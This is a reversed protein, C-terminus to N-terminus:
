LPLKLMTVFLFHFVVGGGVALAFTKKTIPRGFTMLMVFLFAATLLIFPVSELFTAYIFLAGVSVMMRLVLNRTLSPFLGQLTIKRDHFGHKKIERNCQRLELTLRMMWVATLGVLAVGWIEPLTAHNVTQNGILGTETAQSILRYSGVGIFILVTGLFMDKIRAAKEAFLLNATTEM